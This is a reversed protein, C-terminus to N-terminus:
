KRKAKARIVKYAYFTPKRRIKDYIKLYGDTMKATTYHDIVYKRLVKSSPFHERNVKEVMEGVSNCILSPFGSMIEKVAGNNLAVVPTGCAMAEIMVLGFPEEWLTPFLVCSAYKLLAQKRKGGVAGVYKINPNKRIRPAIKTMFLSRDKIPGAIILKKKTRDAIDLAHLIGKQRMVRGIFLLYGHKIESYEYERPNIGNYVYFGRNRGIVQRARKSVYVPYKVWHKVPLHLTCLTPIRLNRRGLASNFTHDHIIDVNRPLKSLIFSGIEKRGVNKPYPILKASSRSGSAAYLYVDKGRRVLEETLEYVIKETGGQNTPPLRTANPTNSIVQVIRLRNQGTKRLQNM